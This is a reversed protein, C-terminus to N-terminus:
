SSALTGEDLRLVVFPTYKQLNGIEQAVAYVDSDAATTKLGAFARQKYVAKGAANTSTQVKLIVKSTSPVKSVAM